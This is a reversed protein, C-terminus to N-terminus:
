STRDLSHSEFEVLDISLNRAAAALTQVYILTNLDVPGPVTTSITAVLARDIYFQITAINEQRIEYLNWAGAVMAVGTDVITASGGSYCYARINASLTSDYYFYIGNTAAAVTDALGLLMASTTITPMSAVFVHSRFQSALIPGISITAEVGRYMKCIDNTTTSTEIRFTGPHNAVTGVATYAGVGADNQIYWQTNGFHLTKGAATPVGSTPAFEFDETWYMRRASSTKAVANALLRWRDTTGDHRFLASEGPGLQLDFNDTFLFRNTATSVTSQNVITLTDTTDINQIGLIEGGPFGEADGDPVVGTVKQDGTLLVRIYASGRDGRTYNDQQSAWTVSDASVMWLKPVTTCTRWRGNSYYLMISDNKTMRHGRAAPTRISTLTNGNNDTLTIYDTTAADRINLIFWFGDNKATFGDINATTLSQLTVSGGCELTSIDFVNLDGATPTLNITSASGFAAGVSSATIFLVKRSGFKPTGDVSQWYCTIVTASTCIGSIVIQEETETPDLDDVALAVPVQVGITLGSLGTLQFSGSLVPVTGLSITQVTAIAGAVGAPGTAGTAGPSGPPGSPGLDGTDGKEGDSGPPGIPGAPGQEGRPGPITAGEAGAEGDGGPAGPTGDDGAAGTAGTAGAAGPPGPTGLPGEPGTEGDGGPPGQAGTAGQPGTEGAAGAPGPPGIPGELGAEGDGGPPGQPGTDGQPGPGGPNGDVGDAGPEGQNGQAGVPGTSGPAGPAGPVGAEGQEGQDGQAGPAGAPGTDGRPGTTGPPGMDGQAGPAGEIGPPGPLGATGQPGAVGNPGAIGPPGGVGAPGPPGPNGQPGQPRPPPAPIFVPPAPLAAAVAAPVACAQYQLDRSAPLAPTLAAPETDLKLDRAM